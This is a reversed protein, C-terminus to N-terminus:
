SAAELALKRARVERPFEYGMEVLMKKAKSKLSNLTKATGTAAARPYQVDARIEFSLQETNLFINYDVGAINYPKSSKLVFIGDSVYRIRM